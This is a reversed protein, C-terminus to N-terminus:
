EEYNLDVGVKAALAFDPGPIQDPEPSGADESDGGPAAPRPNPHEAACADTLRDRIHQRGLESLMGLVMLLIKSTLTLGDGGTSTVLEPELVRLWAGKQELDHVLNQTDRASRGLRDLKVVVLEDNERIFEMIGALEDRGDLSKGSVKEARVIECGAARLRAEQTAYDQFDSSVRAYGIRAM